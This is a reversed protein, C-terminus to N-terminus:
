EPLPPFQMNTPWTLGQLTTEWAAEDTPWGNVATFATIWARRRTEQLNVMVEQLKLSCQTMSPPPPPPVIYTTGNWMMGVEVWEPCVVFQAAVEPSAVEHLDNGIYIQVVYNNELRAQKM